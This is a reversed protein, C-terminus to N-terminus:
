TGKNNDIRNILACRLQTNHIHHLVRLQSTECLNKMACCKVLDSSLSEKGLETDATTNIMNIAYAESVNERLSRELKRVVVIASLIPATHYKWAIPPSFDFSRQYMLEDRIKVYDRSYLHISGVNHTYEGVMCGLKEAVLNQLCSFVFVDYPFGLWADNSRMTVIMSLTNFRILFQISLTCPIDNSKGILDLDDPRWLGIVAQRTFPDKELLDIIRPLQENNWWRRGYHGNAIGNNEFRVYQPAYYKIMDTSPDSGLLWLTEAAAYVPDARRSPHTLLGPNSLTVSYGLIERCDGDRSSIIPQTSLRDILNSWVVNICSQPTRYTM